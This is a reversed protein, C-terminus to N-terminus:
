PPPGFVPQGALEKANGIKKRRISILIQREKEQTQLPKELGKPCNIQSLEHVIEVFESCSKRSRSGGGVLM